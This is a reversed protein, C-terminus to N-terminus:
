EDLIWFADNTKICSASLSKVLHKLTALLNIDIEDKYSLVPLAM